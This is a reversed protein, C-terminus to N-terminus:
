IQCAPGDSLRERLDVSVHDRERLRSYVDLYGQAMAAASFRREFTARVRRRDLDAVRAIAALAEEESTVVFGTVAEDVVEAVSGYKWAVVPTGCAMAEIMVLGFPEPWRIPFLLARANGLFEAKQDHGIEGVFEVLSDNLLPKVVSEFYRSDKPDVKAAIKLPIGARLALRIALDPKKEPAMRGLFALYGGAARERFAYQQPPLGHYVTGLWHADPLPKRQNNSISVLGFGSCTKYVSSIDKLDLRGHLTTVSKHAERGFVPFHIMDTHFHLVDFEPARKKVEFLMNLHAALASSKSAKRDLRIAQDRVPVLQAKSRSDAPGFLTVQHGADTLADCLDAVVQETGGYLKPPVSEYLPPIQAIKVLRGGATTTAQLHLSASARHNSLRCAVRAHLWPVRLLDGSCAEASSHASSM